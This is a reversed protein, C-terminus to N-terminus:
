RRAGSTDHCPHPEPSLRELLADLSNTPKLLTDTMVSSNYSPFFERPAEGIIEGKVPAGRDEFKLGQRQAEQGGLDARIVAAHKPHTEFPASFHRAAQLLLM